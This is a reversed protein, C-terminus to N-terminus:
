KNKNKRKQDLEQQFNIHVAQVSSYNEDTVIKSRPLTWDIKLEGLKRMFEFADKRTKMLSWQPCVVLGSTRHSVVWHHKSMKFFKSIENQTKPKKDAPSYDDTTVVGKHVVLGPVSPLIFGRIAFLVNVARTMPIKPQKWDWWSKKYVHILMAAMADVSEAKEATMKDSTCVNAAGQLESM